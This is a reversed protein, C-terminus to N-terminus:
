FRRSMIMMLLNTMSIIIIIIIIIMIIIIFLLTKVQAISGSGEEADEVGEGAAVVKMNQDIQHCHHDHHHDHHHNHWNHVLLPQAIFFLVLRLFLFQLRQSSKLSAKTM